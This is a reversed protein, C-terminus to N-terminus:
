IISLRTNDARTRPTNCAKYVLVAVIRLFCVDVLVGEKEFEVVFCGSERVFVEIVVSSLWKNFEPRLILTSEFMTQYMLM